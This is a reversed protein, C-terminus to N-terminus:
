IDGNKDCKISLRDGVKGNRPANTRKQDNM